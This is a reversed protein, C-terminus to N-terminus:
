VSASGEIIGNHEPNCSFSLALIFFVPPQLIKIRTISQHSPGLDLPRGPVVINHPYPCPISM